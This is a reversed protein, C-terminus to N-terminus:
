LPPLSMMGWAFPVGLAECVAHEFWTEGASMEADPLSDLWLLSREGGANAVPLFVSYHGFFDVIVPPFYDFRGAWEAGWEALSLLRDGQQMFFATTGDGRFPKEDTAWDKVAQEFGRGATNVGLVVVLRTNVGLVVVLRARQLVFRLLKRIGLCSVAKRFRLCSIGTFSIHRQLALSM